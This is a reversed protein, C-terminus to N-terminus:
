SDEEGLWYGQGRRTHILPVLGPRDLKKRLYGIYVDVVNSQAQSNFEYLHEWIENRSVVERARLALYELLAYERRTLDIEQGSRRVQRTAQNLELDAVKILPSKSQYQRRLLARVRAMLEDLAFPKVLYDDAGLDLGEVRDEVADRATLILVHTQIGEGRLSRLISWGDLGPLMLDLVVLDYDNSQAYWLGEQGEGTADVAYGAEQLARVVAKRLPAYDEM